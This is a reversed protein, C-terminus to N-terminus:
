KKAKIVSKLGQKKIRWFGLFLLAPIDIARSIIMGFGTLDLWDITDVGAALGGVVMYEAINPSKGAKKEERFVYYVFGTWCPLIGFPSMEGLFPIIIKFFSGKSKSVNTTKSKIKVTKTRTQNLTSQNEREEITAM